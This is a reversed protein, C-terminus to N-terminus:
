RSQAWNHLGTAWASMRAISDALTTKPMQNIQSQLQAEVALVPAIATQFKEVSANIGTGYNAAKNVTAQQWGSKGVRQLNRSWRGSSVAQLFNQQLKGVQAVALATPDKSTNQVGETYRGQATGASQQWRQAATGADVIGSAVIRYGLTMGAAYLMARIGKGM